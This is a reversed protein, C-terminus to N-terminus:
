SPGLVLGRLEDTRPDAVTAVDGTLTTDFGEVARVEVCSPIPIWTCSDVCGWAAWCALLCSAVAFDSTDAEEGGFVVGTGPVGVLREDTEDLALLENSACSFSRSLFAFTIPLIPTQAKSAFARLLGQLVIRFRSISFPSNSVTINPSLTM